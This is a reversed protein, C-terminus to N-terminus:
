RPAPRPDEAAPREGSTPPGGRERYGIAELAGPPTSPPPGPPPARMRPELARVRAEWDAIAGELVAPLAGDAVPQDERYVAVPSGVPRLLSGAALRWVAKDPGARLALLGPGEWPDTATAVVPMPAPRLGLLLDHVATLGIQEDLVAGESLGPPPPAVVLPVRLVEDRLSARHNFYYGGGFSEGHDSVLVVRATAPLAALLRGLELDLAEIECRYLAVVHRLDEAPLTPAPPAAGQYPGLTALSGDIAGAYGPDCPGAPEYPYHADFYHVFAFFPGRQEGIWALAAETVGPGARKPERRPEGQDDYRDFGRDLGTLAAELTIGGVFAGTAYGRARLTEAVTPGTWASDGARPIEGHLAPEVGTMMSWHSWSTEPFHTIAQTWRAGRRALAELNPTRAGEGWLALHAASVTDWSVLVVSERAAVERDEPQEPTAGPRPSCSILIALALAAAM